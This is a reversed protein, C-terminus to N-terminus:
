YLDKCIDQESLIICWIFLDRLEVLWPFWFKNWYKFFKTAFFNDNLALAEMVEVYDLLYQLFVSSINGNGYQQKNKM